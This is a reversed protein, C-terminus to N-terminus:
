YRRPSTAQDFFDNSANAHLNRPLPPNTLSGTSRREVLTGTISPDGAIGSGNAPLGTLSEPQMNWSKNAAIEKMTQPPVARPVRETENAVAAFLHEAFDQHTESSTRNRRQSTRIHRTVAIGAWVLAFFSVISIAFLIQMLMLLIDLHLPEQM